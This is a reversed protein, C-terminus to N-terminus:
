RSPYFKYELVYITKTGITKLLYVEVDSIIALREEINIPLNTLTRFSPM